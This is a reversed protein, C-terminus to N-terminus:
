DHMKKEMSNTVTNIVIVNTCQFKSHMYYTSLIKDLRNLIKVLTKDKVKKLFYGKISKNTWIIYTLYQLITEINIQNLWLDTSAFAKPGTQLATYNADAFDHQCFIEIFKEISNQFAPINDKETKLKKINEMSFIARFNALQQLASIEFSSFEKM